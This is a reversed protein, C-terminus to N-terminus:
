PPNPMPNPLPNVLRLKCNLTDAVYIKNDSTTSVYLEQQFM